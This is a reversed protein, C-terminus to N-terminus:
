PQEPDETEVNALSYVMDATARVRVVLWGDV